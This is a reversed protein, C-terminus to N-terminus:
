MVPQVSTSSTVSGFQLLGVALRKGHSVGIDDHTRLHSALITRGTLLVAARGAMSSEKSRSKLHCLWLIEYLWMSRVSVCLFVRM